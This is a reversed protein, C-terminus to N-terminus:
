FEIIIKIEEFQGTKRSVPPINELYLMTGSNAAFEVSPNVYNTATAQGGAALQPSEIISIKRYTIATSIDTDLLKARLMVYKAFLRDVANVDGSQQQLTTEKLMAGYNVPLWNASLLNTQDYTSLDYLFRWTYGDGTDVISNIGTGTPEVTSLTGAAAKTEVSYVYFQSNMVYFNTAWPTQSTPDYTFYETNVTWDIRPVVPVIDTKSILHAGLIDAWFAQRETESNVPAPPQLENTWPTSGGVCLYLNDASSVPAYKDVFNKAMRIRFPATIIASM